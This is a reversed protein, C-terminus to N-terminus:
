FYFLVKGLRKKEEKGWRGEEKDGGEEKKGKEQISKIVTLTGLVTSIVSPSWLRVPCGACKPLQCIAHDLKSQSCEKMVILIKNIIVLFIVLRERLGCAEYIVRFYSRNFTFCVMYIKSPRLGM